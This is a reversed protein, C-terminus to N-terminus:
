NMPPSFMLHDLEHPHPSVFSSLIYVRGASHNSVFALTNLYQFTEMCPPCLGVKGRIFDDHPKAGRAGSLSRGHEQKM